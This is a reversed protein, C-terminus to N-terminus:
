ALTREMYVERLPSGTASEIDQAPEERVVKFGLHEFIPVNGTERVTFLSLKALGMSSAKEALSEVM